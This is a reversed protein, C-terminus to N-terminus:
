DAGPGPLGSAVEAPPYRDVFRAMKEIEDVYRAGVPDYPRLAQVTHGSIKEVVWTFAGADLGATKAAQRVLTEPDAGPTGGVLRVLARMLVFFTGVSDLLLRTTAKGDPAAAVYAARLQLLKGRLERELEHRLDTPSTQIGDFPDTGALLEHAERMDEVEIPFVDASARWEDESVVVPPHTDRRKLWQAVAAEVPRLAATSADRVIVFLNLDGHEVAYGPRIRSGFLMLTVLNDGLADALRAGLARLQEDHSKGM